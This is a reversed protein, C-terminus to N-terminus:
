RKIRSPQINIQCHGLEINIIKSILINRSSIYIKTRIPNNGDFTTGSNSEVDFSVVRRGDLSLNLYIKTENAREEIHEFESCSRDVAISIGQPYLISILLKFKLYSLFPFWASNKEKEFYLDVTDGKINKLNEMTLDLSKPKRLLRYNINISNEKISLQILALFLIFSPIILLFKNTIYDESAPWLEVIKDSFAVAITYILSFFNITTVVANLVKVM